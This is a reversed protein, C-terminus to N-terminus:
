FEVTIQLTAAAGAVASIFEAEPIEQEELVVTDGAVLLHGLSTTAATVFSMRVDADEVSIFVYQAQEDAGRASSSTLTVGLDALSQSADTTNVTTAQKPTGARKIRQM